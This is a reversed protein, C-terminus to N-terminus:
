RLSSHSKGRNILIIGDANFANKDIYVPLDKITRGIEVVEMSSKIECGMSEKTIGLKELIHKQGIADGGGHSGMAPVIFPVGGEEKVFDVITKMIISYHSIGRSGGTIAVTKGKEIKNKFNDEKLLKKIEAKVDEIKRKDFNQKVKVIEPLKIEELISNIKNM